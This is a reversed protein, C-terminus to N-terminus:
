AAAAESSQVYLRTLTERLGDMGGGQRLYGRYSKVHAEQPHSIFGTMAVIHDANRAMADLKTIGEDKWFRLDFCNGFEQDILGAQNPKLGLILVRPLKARLHGQSATEVIAPLRVNAQRTLEVQLHDLFRAALAGALLRLAGDLDELLATGRALQAPPTEAAPPTGAGATPVPESAAGERAPAAPPTWDYPLKPPTIQARKEKAWQELLAAVARISYSSHVFRQRAPPLVTGQATRVLRVLQPDDARVGSNWLHAAVTETESAKWFVKAAREAM